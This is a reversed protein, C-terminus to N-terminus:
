LENEILDLGLQYICVNNALCWDHCKQMTANLHDALEKSFSPKDTGAEVYTAYDDDPHFCCDHVVYLDIFFAKVDEVSNIEYHKM